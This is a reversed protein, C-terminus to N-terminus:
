IKKRFHINKSLQYNFLLGNRKKKVTYIKKAESKM